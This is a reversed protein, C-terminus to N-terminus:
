RQSLADYGVESDPNASFPSPPHQVKIQEEQERKLSGSPTSLSEQRRVKAPREDRGSDHLCPSQARKM